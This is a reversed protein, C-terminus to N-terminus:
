AQGASSPRGLGGGTTGGFSINEKKLSGDGAINITGMTITGRRWDGDADYLLQGLGPISFITEVIVSGGFLGALLGAGLTIM